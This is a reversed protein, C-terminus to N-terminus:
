NANNLEELKKWCRRLNTMVTGMKMNFEKAIQKYKLEKTVQARILESCKKICQQVCDVVSDCKPNAGEDTNTNYLVPTLLVSTLLCSKVNM